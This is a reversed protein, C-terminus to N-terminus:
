CGTSRLAEAPEIRAAHTSPGWAAVVASAVIVSINVLLIVPNLLFRIRGKELFLGSAPIFSLDVLSLLRFLLVGLLLGVFSSIFALIAAETLFLKRVQNREMGMARLTGIEKTRVHVLVRYSNLIGVMVIVIFITLTFYTVAQLADLLQKIEALQANQSLVAYKEYNMGSTFLIIDREERSHIHPFVDFHFSLERRIDETFREGDIGEKAYVAIDTAYDGNPTILHNLDEQRMYAVFGFLSTEDFIGQVILRATNFQGSNTKLSLTLDDGIRCGLIRSAITSILIGDKGNDTALSEWGGEQFALTNFERGEASFDIGILKRQRITQGNFFLVADDYYYVTRAAITRIPLITDSLIQIINKPERIFPILDMYGTISSTGAFYRGAKVKISELSGYLTGTILTILSSVVLISLAILVHRKHRLILNRISLFLILM